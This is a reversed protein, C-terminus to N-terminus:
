KKNLKKECNVIEKVYWSVLSRLTDGLLYLDWRTESDGSYAGYGDETAWEAHTKINDIKINSFYAVYAACFCATEIQSWVIAQSSGYNWKNFDHRLMGKKLLIGIRKDWAEFEADLMGLLSIGLNAYNRHYTHEPIPDEVLCGSVPTNGKFILAEQTKENYGILLHYSRVDSNNPMHNGASWHFTISELDTNIFSKLKNKLIKYSLIDM